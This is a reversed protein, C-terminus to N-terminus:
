NSFIKKRRYDVSTKGNKCYDDQLNDYIYTALTRSTYPVFHNKSKPNFTTMGYRYDITMMRLFLSDRFHLTYGDKNKIMDVVLWSHAVIGSIQLMQFTIQKKIMVRDYLDDMMNQMEASSVESEGSLGRIWGFLFGGDGIQWGELARIIEKEYVTSFEKLNHFGPIEVVGQQAILDQILDRAEDYSPKPLHPLFVTLYTANRQFMSHWWCLGSNALGMKNNSVFSLANDANYLLDKFYNPNKRQQCFEQRSTAPQQDLGRQAKAALPLLLSSTLIAISLFHKTMIWLSALPTGLM